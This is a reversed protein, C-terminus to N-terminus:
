QIILKDIDDISPESPQSIFRGTDNFQAKGKSEDAIYDIVGKSIEIYYTKGKKLMLTRTNKSLTKPETYIDTDLLTIKLNGEKKFAFVLREGYHIKGISTKSLFLNMTKDEKGRPYAICVKIDQAFSKNELSSLLFILALSILIKM